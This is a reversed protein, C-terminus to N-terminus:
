KPRPDANLHRRRDEPLLLAKFLNEAANRHQEAAREDGLAKATVAMGSLAYAEEVRYGVRSAVQYARTHHRLAADDNNRSHLFRGLMNDVVAQCLPSDSEDILSIARDAFTLAEESAMLRHAVEASLALTIAVQGPERKEGSLERAEALCEEAAEYEGMGVRARALDTLATPAVEHQRIMRTLDVAQQAAEAAEPHRGWQEYLSSLASLSEAEARPMGLEHELAVASRLSDLAQPFDGALCHCLGLTADCRAQTQRDGVRIALELGESAASIGEAHQGLKWCAVGYNTLSVSLLGLDDLRRAAHVAELSLKAFEALSGRANLYFVTNRILGVARRFYGHKMALTIVSIATRHERDFWAQAADVGDLPPLRISTSQKVGFPRDTRGPFLLHCANETALLYYDALRRVPEATSHDASEPDGQSDSGDSVRSEHLSRAFSSVLDHYAYWGIAPQRLLHSDLLLELNNEADKVDLGLLAAASFVDIERGPHLALIRFATRCDEPLVQYSLRLTISVGRKGLSLEDLRRHEDRLREVLYRPTWLQRNSLRATAIRLALPLHGCLVALEAVVNPDSSVRQAGLLEAVLLESEESTMIDISIWAAGDLAILRARSTVVVLCGPSTPVLSSVVFAEAANDLLILLRKDAVVSRWLVTRSVVDEPIREPRLGFALLLLELADSVSLPAESSYGCLDVYLQGDPYEASLLYAARVALSTKGTGGMGDIAVIHSHSRRDRANQLLWNLEKARGVFDALDAPLTCPTQPSLASTHGAGQSPATQLAPEPAMLEPAERLIAENLRTLHPGPDVGLEEGLHDRARGYEGLAEARRGSRYLALMLQYRLTERLPYRSVHDSLDSVLGSAEGLALRFESHQEVATLYREEMTVAVAEIVPGGVDALVPGRWLRLAEGLLRVAEPFQDQDSAATAQRVLGEFEVVDLQVDPAVVYGPGTTILFENGGPIRRRLDAIAKRVQHSATAPPEEGWVVDVLRSVTLLKGRELLLAGLVRKQIVGGLELKVDRDWAELPGLINFHM